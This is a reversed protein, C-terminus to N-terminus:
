KVKFVQMEDESSSSRSSLLSATETLRTRSVDEISQNFNQSIAPKKGKEKGEKDKDM